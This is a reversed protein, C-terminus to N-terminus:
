RGRKLPCGAGCLGARHRAWEARIRAYSDERAKSTSVEEPPVSDREHLLFFRSAVRACNARIQEAGHQTNAWFLTSTAAISHGRLAWSLRAHSESCAEAVVALGYEEQLSRFLAIAKPSLTELNRM